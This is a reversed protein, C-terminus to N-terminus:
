HFRIYLNSHQSNPFTNPRYFWWRKHTFNVSSLMLLDPRMPWWSDLSPQSLGLLSLSLLVEEQRRWPPIAAQGQTGKMGLWCGSRVWHTTNTYSVVWRPSFNPGDSVHHVFIVAVNIFCDKSPLSLSCSFYNLKVLSPVNQTFSVFHPVVCIILENKDLVSGWIWQM